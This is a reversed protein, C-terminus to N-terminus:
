THGSEDVELELGIQRPTILEVDIDALLARIEELKGQNNSALLLKTM